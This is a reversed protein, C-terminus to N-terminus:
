PLPHCWTTRHPHINKDRGGHGRSQCSVRLGRCDSRERKNPEQLFVWICGTTQCPRVKSGREGPEMLGVHTPSLVQPYSINCSSHVTSTLHGSARLWLGWASSHPILVTNTAQVHIKTTVTLLLYSASVTIGPGQPPFRTASLNPSRGPVEQSCTPSPGM